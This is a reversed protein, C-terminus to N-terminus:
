LDSTGARM